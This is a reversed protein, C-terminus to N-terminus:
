NHYSIRVITGTNTVVIAPSTMCHVLIQPKGINTVVVTLSTMCHVLVPIEKHVTQTRSLSSWM